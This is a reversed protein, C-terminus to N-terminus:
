VPYFLLLTGVIIPVGSSSLSILSNYPNDALRNSHFCMLDELEGIKVGFGTIKDGYFGFLVRIFEIKM